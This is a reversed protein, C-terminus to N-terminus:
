LSASIDAMVPFHDSPTKSHYTDTLVGFKRVRFHPSVFIHDILRNEESHKGWSNFSPSNVYPHEALTLADRLLGSNALMKYCVSEHDSNFDGTLVSPESGSISTMKELVLRSSENRAQEGYHDFHANFVFVTKGDTYHQLQVWTCLRNHRADWGLGSRDPTESLWFDGGSIFLFKEKNYFIASHEGADKGDDRAVGYRGFYPLATNIEELPGKLGEQTALIDFEHFRILNIIVPSRDVWLNGIDKNNAYRLNYTAIRFSHNMAAAFNPLQVSGARKNILNV